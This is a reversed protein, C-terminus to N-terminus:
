GRDLFVVAVSIDDTSGLAAARDALSRAVAVADDSPRFLRRANVFSAADDSSLADWLGDSALVLADADGLDLVDVDPAPSIKARRWASGGLARPVAVRWNEAVVRGGQASGGRNELAGRERPDALTHDSTAFAAAPRGARVAVCRSDGCHLLALAQADVDVCAAVAVAGGPGDKDFEEACRLWAYRLAAELSSSRGDRSDLKEALLEPFRRAAHRSAEQGGHGDAVLAFACGAGAALPATAEAAVDRTAWDRADLRAADGAAALAVCDEIAARASGRRRYAGLSVGIVRRTEPLLPAAEPRRERADVVVELLRGKPAATLAAMAAEFTAARLDVFQVDGSRDVYELSVLRDGVAPAGLREAAGSAGVEAVFVGSDDEEVVIGLPMELTLRKEDGFAFGQTAPLDPPRRKAEDVVRNAASSGLRDALARAEPAASACSLRKSPDGVMMRKLLKWLDVAGDAEFAGIAALPSLLREPLATQAMKSGLWADLDHDAAAFEVNFADVDNDSRLYPSLLVRLAVYACGYADFTRWAASEPDCFREPPCYRPSVPSRRAEYGRRSAVDFGSGFDILRLSRDRPSVLVNSAKVDRHAVGVGNVGGVADALFALVRSAVALNAAGSRAAEPDSAACAEDPLAPCEDEYACADIGLAAALADVGCSGDGVYSAADRGGPVREFVLYDTTKPDFLGRGPTPGAAVGAYGAVGGVGALKENLFKETAWYQRSLDDKKARKAVFGDADDGAQAAVVVGYSGEGILRTEDVAIDTARLARAARCHARPPVLAHARSLLVALLRSYAM